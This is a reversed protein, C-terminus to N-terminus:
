RWRVGARESGRLDGRRERGGARARRDRMLVRRPDSTEAFTLLASSDVPLRTGIQALQAKTVHRVSYSYYTFLWGCLAGLVAWIVLGQVGSTILGFLGWTLAPALTGALVRRPDYVSPKHKENVKLVVTDLVVDGGSRLKQDLPRRAKAAVKPEAFCALLMGLQRDGANSGSAQQPKDNVSAMSGQRASRAPTRLRVRPAPRARTRPARRSNQRAFHRVPHDARDPRAGRGAARRAEAAHVPGRAGPKIPPELALSKLFAGAAAAMPHLAWGHPFDVEHEERPDWELNHIHPMNLPSWTSYMDDQQFLHVKWQRWKVAQLRNGQLCLVVDRGSQEADGLLFERMDVGDIQRDDPVSGGGALVLTTFLDVEHVLENSVRGAPM